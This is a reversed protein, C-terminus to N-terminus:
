RDENCHVAAFLIYRKLNSNNVNIRIGDRNHDLRSFHMWVHHYTVASEIRSEWKSQDSNFPGENFTSYKKNKFNILFSSHSAKDCKQKM